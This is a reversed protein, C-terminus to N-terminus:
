DRNEVAFLRQQGALEATYFNKGTLAEVTGLEDIAQRVLPAVTKALEASTTIMYYGPPAHKSGRSSGIKKGKRRLARVAQKILRQLNARHPYVPFGKKESVCCSWEYAWLEMAIGEISIALAEGRRKAIVGEILLLPDGQPSFDFRHHEPIKEAM